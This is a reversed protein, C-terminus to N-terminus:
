IFSAYCTVMSFWETVSELLSYPWLWSSASKMNWSIRFIELLVHRFVTNQFFNSAYMYRRHLSKHSISYLIQTACIIWCSEILYQFIFTKSWQMAWYGFNFSMLMELIKLKKILTEVSSHFQTSRTITQLNCFLVVPILYFM